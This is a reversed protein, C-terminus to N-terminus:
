KERRFRGRKTTKRMAEPLGKFFGINFGKTVIVFPPNSRTVCIRRQQEPIDGGVGVDFYLGAAGFRHIHFHGEDSKDTVPMVLMKRLDAEKPEPNRIAAVTVRVTDPLPSRNKLYDRLETEYKGLKTDNTKSSSSLSARWVVSVAFHALDKATSKEIALVKTEVRDIVFPYYDDPNASDLIPFSNGDKQLALLGVAGETISFIQECKPCLLHERVQKSSYYAKSKSEDAANDINILENADGRIRNYVWRPMIHSDLLPGNVDCLSCNGIESKAM